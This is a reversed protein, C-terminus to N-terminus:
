TTPNMTQRQSGRLAPHPETTARGQFNLWRHNDYDYLKCVALNYAMRRISWREVVIAAPYAQEIHRQSETLRYLPIKPNVHHATHQMIHASLWEFVAPLQIHVTSEVQGAFFDWEEKTAYWVIRPHNHHQYISFGMVWNWILFPLGVALLLLMPWSTFAAWTGATPSLSQSWWTVGAVQTAAFGAVLLCDGAFLGPRKMEQRESHSLFLLHKWWYEVLYYTGLGWFARYHRELLRRLPPLRDYEDKAFPAWAYDRGRLNTYSHHIRNHAFEWSTFPTLSPLFCVRGLIRNLLDNPTLSGHCADHGCVFVTGIFIGAVLSCAVQAPWWPAALVGAFAVGYVTLAIVTVALGLVTSRSSVDPPIQGRVVPVSPRQAPSSTPTASSVPAEAM